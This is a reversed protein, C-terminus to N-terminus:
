TDSQPCLEFTQLPPSITARRILNSAFNNMNVHHVSTVSDIKSSCNINWGLDTKSVGGDVKGRRLPELLRRFLSFSDRDSLVQGQICCFHNKQGM